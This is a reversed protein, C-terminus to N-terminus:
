ENMHEACTVPCLAGGTVMLDDEMANCCYSKYAANGESMLRCSTHLKGGKFSITDLSDVNRSTCYANQCQIPCSRAFTPQEMENCWYNRGSEPYYAADKCRRTKQKKSPTPIDAKSDRCFCEPRFGCATPCMDYVKLPVPLQSTVAHIDLGCVVNRYEWSAINFLDACTRARIGEIETETESNISSVTVFPVENDACTCERNLCAVPCREQVLMDYVKIATGDEDVAPQSNDDYPQHNSLCVRQYWANPLGGPMATRMWDVWACTQDTGLSGFLEKRNEDRCSRVFNYCKAHGCAVPCDQEM